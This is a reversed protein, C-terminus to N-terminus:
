KLCGWVLRKNIKLTILIKNPVRKSCVIVRKLLIQIKFSFSLFVILSLADVLADVKEKTSSESSCENDDESSPRRRLCTRQVSDSSVLTLKKSNL